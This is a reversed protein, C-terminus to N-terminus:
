SEINNSYITKIIYYLGMFFIYIAAVRRESAIKSNIHTGSIGNNKSKNGLSLTYESASHTQATNNNRPKCTTRNKNVNADNIYPQSLNPPLSPLVYREM